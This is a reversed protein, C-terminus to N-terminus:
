GATAGASVSQGGDGYSDYSYGGGGSGHRNTYSETNFATRQNYASAGTGYSSMPQQGLGAASHQAAAQQAAYYVAAYENYGYGLDIIIHSHLLTMM